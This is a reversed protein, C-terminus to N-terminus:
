HPLTCGAVKPDFENKANLCSYIWYTQQGYGTGKQYTINGQADVECPNNMTCKEGDENLTNNVGIVKRTGAELIPSGSTGGIINCGTKSYRISDEWAWKDEKMQYAFGDVHCRYGKKWYGSIIEINLNSVPRNSSLTLAEIGAKERIQRYTASIRYLTIDTKTMTSYVIKMASASTTVQTNQGYVTLRRSSSKDFVFTGPAPFGTELCHGNTLVLGLDDDSSTELRVLSGSCNSLGVIGTFDYDATFTPPIFISKLNDTPQPLPLATALASTIALLFLIGNKM